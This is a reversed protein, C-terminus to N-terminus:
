VREGGVVFFWNERGEFDLDDREHWLPAGPPRINRGYRDRRIERKCANGSTGLPAM